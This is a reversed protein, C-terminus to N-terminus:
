SLKSKVYKTVPADYLFASLKSRARVGQRKKKSKVVHTTEEPRNAQIYSIGTSFSILPVGLADLTAEQATIEREGTMRKVIEYMKNHYVRQM